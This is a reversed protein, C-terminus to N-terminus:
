PQKATNVKLIPQLAREFADAQLMFGFDNPHSSDVTGDGNPDLLKDGKLYYLNKVGDAILKDYAQKLAKRSSENRQKKDLMLFSNSYTRDEVLLIPTEPRAKRLARVLPETRTAVEKAIMNPLCDIIYVAADIETMLEALPLEMRGNGLFGLNVVPLDFRRGLIATHVMGPRSACAGHTISTGYFVLPKEKGASRSPAQWLKADAPLGIEVKSVGNYLPLYLQYERQAPAIRPVLTATATQGGPKGNALWRLKGNDLKVYLDVGSVGTAPMHPLDLRPSTLSWRAKITGADTVFRAAMGASHRSLNWVASRVLKEAKAPLRDYDSVTESWAKGEIPLQQLDYWRTNGDESLEGKEPAILDMAASTSVLQTFSVLCIAFLIIPKNLM